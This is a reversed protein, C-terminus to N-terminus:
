NDAANPRRQTRESSSKMHHINRPNAILFMDNNAAVGPASVRVASLNQRASKAKAWSHRAGDSASDVVATSGKEVTQIPNANMPKRVDVSHVDAM